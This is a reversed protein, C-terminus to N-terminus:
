IVIRCIKLLSSTHPVLWLTHRGLEINKGSFQRTQTLM